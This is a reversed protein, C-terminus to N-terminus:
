LSSHVICLDCLLTELYEETLPQVDDNNGQKSKHTKSDKEYETNLVNDAATKKGVWPAWRYPEKM